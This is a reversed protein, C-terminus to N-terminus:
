INKTIIENNIKKEKRDVGVAVAISANAAAFISMGNCSVQLSEM